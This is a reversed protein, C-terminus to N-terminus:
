ILFTKIPLYIVNKNAMNQINNQKGSKDITYARGSKNGMHQVNIEGGQNPASEHAVSYISNKNNFDIITAQQVLTEGRARATMAGIFGEVVSHLVKAGPKETSNDM